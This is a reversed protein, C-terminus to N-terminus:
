AGVFREAHRQAGDALLADFNAAAVASQLAAEFAPPDTVGEYIEMWTETADDRRMLRGKVGTSSLVAAQIGSVVGPVSQARRPAIRYYIFYATM